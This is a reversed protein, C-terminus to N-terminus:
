GTAPDLCSRWPDRDPLSLFLFLCRWGTELLSLRSAAWDPVRQSIGHHATESFSGQHIRGLSLGCCGILSRFLQGQLRWSSRLITIPERLNMGHHIIPCRDTQEDCITGGDGCRRWGGCVVGKEGCGDM